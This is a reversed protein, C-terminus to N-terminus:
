AGSEASRSVLVHVDSDALPGRAIDSPGLAVAATSRFEILVFHQVEDVASLTFGNPVRFSAPPETFGALVLVIRSLPEPEVLEVLDPRQRSLAASQYAPYVVVAARLTGSRPLAAAVNRWDDRQLQPDTTVKLDVVLSWCVLAVLCAAGLWGAGRAAFGGAVFVSLPVWAGLVNRDLFFDGNGSMLLDAAISVAIPVGVALAAVRLALMAGSRERPSGRSVLFLAALGLVGVAVIWVYPTVRAGTAGAWTSPPAATALRQLAEAVREGFDLDGVWGLRRHRAQLAALPLLAVAVAAVGGLAWRLRGLRPYRRLLLAAEALVVFVAFYHTALALASVIAWAALRGRSPDSLALAFLVFSAGGLLALLAYARAEQSYWILVPSVAALAAAALGVRMTAVVRGAAFAVPVVLTGVFASLARLYVEESGFLQAWAWGLVYYLPPTSESDVIGPLLDAFSGEVLSVTVAEDYWYSQQDLTSFRLAAGVGTLLLLGVGARSRLFDVIASTM